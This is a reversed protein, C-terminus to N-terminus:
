DAEGLEQPTDAYRSYRSAGTAFRIFAITDYLGHALIVAWLNRGSFVFILGFIVSLQAVIVAARGGQYLHIILAGLAAFAIGAGASAWGPLQATAAQAQISQLLLGRLVLEELFGGLVWAILIGALLNGPSEKLAKFAGLTPPRKFRREAIWNALPTAILLLALGALASAATLPWSVAASLGLDEPTVRGLYLSVLAYAGLIVLGGILVPTSRRFGLAVLALWALTLVLGITQFATM